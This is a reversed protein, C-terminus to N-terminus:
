SVISESFSGATFVRMLWNCFCSYNITSSSLNITFSSLPSICALQSFNQLEMLKSVSGLSDEIFDVLEYLIIM